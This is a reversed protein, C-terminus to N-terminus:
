QEQVSVVQLKGSDEARILVRIERQTDEGVLLLAVEGAGKAQASFKCGTPTSLANSIVCVDAGDGRVSWSDENNIFSFNLIGDVDVNWKYTLGDAEVSTAERERHQYSSVTAKGEADVHVIVTLVFSVTEDAQLATFTLQAAGEEKGAVRYRCFYEEDTNERTVECIDEPIVEMQWLIGSKEGDQLTIEVGNGEHHIEYPCCVDNVSIDKTEVKGTCGALILLIALM